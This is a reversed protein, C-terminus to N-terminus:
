QVTYVHLTLLIWSVWKYACVEKRHLYHHRHRICVLVTTYM